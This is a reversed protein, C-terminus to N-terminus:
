VSALTLVINSLHNTFYILFITIKCISTHITILDVHFSYPLYEIIMTLLHISDSIALILFYFCCSKRGISNFINLYIIQFLKRLSKRAFVCISLLTSIIGVIFILTGFYLIIANTILCKQLDDFLSFDTSNQM